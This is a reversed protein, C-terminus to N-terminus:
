QYHNTIEEIRCIQIQSSGSTKIERFLLRYQDNIRLSSYGEQNGKLREYNLSRLSRLDDLKQICYLIRVCKVYRSVIQPQFCKQKDNTKGKYYLESLYTKGFEIQM